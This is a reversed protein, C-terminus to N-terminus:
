YDYIHDIKVHESELSPIVERLRNL